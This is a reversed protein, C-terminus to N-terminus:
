MGQNPTWLRKPATSIAVYPALPNAPDPLNLLGDVVGALDGERAWLMRDPHQARFGFADHEDVIKIADVIGPVRRYTRTGKLATIGREDLEEAFRWGVGIVAQLGALVPYVRVAQATPIVDAPDM